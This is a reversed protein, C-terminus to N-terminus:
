PNVFNDAFLADRGAAPEAEVVEAVPDLTERRLAALVRLDLDDLENLEEGVDDVDVLLDLKQKEKKKGINKIKSLIPNELSFIEYITFTKPV